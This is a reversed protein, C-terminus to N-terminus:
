FPIDKPDIEKEEGVGMFGKESHEKEKQKPIKLGEIDMEEENKDSHITAILSQVIRNSLQNLVWSGQPYHQLIVPKWVSYDPFARRPNEEFFKTTVTIYESILDKNDEGCEICALFCKLMSLTAHAHDRPALAMMREREQKYDDLRKQWAEDDTNKREVEISQISSFPVQLAGYEFLTPREGHPLRRAIRAREAVDDPVELTREPVGPLKYKIIQTM